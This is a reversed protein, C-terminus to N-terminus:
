SKPVRVLKGGKIVLLVRRTASIDQLVNGPVAIVDALKGAELTGLSGDLGLLQAGASTAARLAEAPSMGAAVMLELEHANLGHQSVASDTGLAIRVGLKVATSFTNTMAGSAALAKAAIAPPLKGERGKRGVTEGAMLTPVLFTGKRKMEALTEPKLFSGHEISDVGAAIAFRAAQDGHCHAAVKRGWRHAEDIIAFIEDPTLQPTDVADALSLVGGSAMFKIVDAGYKIQFRVAERCQDAGSCVGTDVGPPRGQRDLPMPTGDGHGGRATLPNGAALIRPGDVIGKNIANRLGADVHDAAGLNRVTTFGAQLTRWAYQQALLANEAPFRLQGEVFDQAFSEHAEFSLHVHADILGPLLTADGLDIVQAGEPLKLANGIEIIRDGEILLMGNDVLAGSRGDFLHAAKLLLRNPPPSPPPGRKIVVGGKMVFSVHETATIDKLVDGPVAIVDALKGKELAGLTGALGFLEANTVTAAQLAAAPTMGAKVLLGLERANQGHPTVSSDTGLAIRVGLKIASRLAREHAAAALKGKAAIAPPFHAEPDLLRLETMTTPVYFTGKKKMLALTDEELFSGHEISDVGAQIAMKAAKDGHCHAAAKRKWAHAEEVIADMEAQSLQPVDPPDGLSLVGGSAMFKIVDAGYKLQWRTAARCEDAGNCIGQQVGYPKINEVPFPDQDAHGGTSGVQGNSVLVRPGLIAGKNIANRLALAIFDNSGLDRVATFGAELTRRAYVSAQQVQEAPSVLLGDMADQYFDRSLQNSLHDHADMLGPLLTAEGLDIVEVGAPVEGAVQVIAEGEVVVLGPSVLVGKRADFLHAAKVAIRAPAPAAAPAGSVGLSLLALLLTISRM